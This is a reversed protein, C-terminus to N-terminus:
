TKIRSDSCVFSACKVILSFLSINGTIEFTRTLSFLPTSFTGSYFGAVKRSAPQALRQSLM